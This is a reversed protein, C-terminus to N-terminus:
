PYDTFIHRLFVVADGQVLVLFVFVTQGNGVHVEAIVGVVNRHAIM